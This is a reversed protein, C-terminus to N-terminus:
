DAIIRKFRNLLNKAEEMEEEFEELVILVNKYQGNVIDNYIEEVEGNKIAENYGVDDLGYIFRIYDKSFDKVQKNDFVKM